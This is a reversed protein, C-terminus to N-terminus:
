DTFLGTALALFGANWFTTCELLEAKPGVILSEHPTGSKVPVTSDLCTADDARM